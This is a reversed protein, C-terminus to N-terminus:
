VGSFVDSLQVEIKSDYCREKRKFLIRLREIWTLEGLTIKTGYANDDNTGYYQFVDAQVIRGNRFYQVEKGKLGEKLFSDFHKVNNENFEIGPGGYNEQPYFDCKYFYEQEQQKCFGPTRSDIFELTILDGNDLIGVKIKTDKSQDTTVFIAFNTLGKKFESDLTYLRGATLKTNFYQQWNTM